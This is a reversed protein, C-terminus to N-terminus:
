PETHAQMHTQIHSSQTIYPSSALTQCQLIFQRRFVFIEIRFMENESCFIPVNKEWHINETRTFNRWHTFRTSKCSFTRMKEPTFSLVIWNKGRCEWVISINRPYNKRWHCVRPQIPTIAHIWGEGTPAKRLRPDMLLRVINRHASLIPQTSSSNGRAEKREGGSVRQSAAQRTHTGCREGSLDLGVHMGLIDHKNIWFAKGDGEVVAVQM